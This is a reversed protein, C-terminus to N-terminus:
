MKVTHLDLGNFQSYSTTKRMNAAHILSHNYVFIVTLAKVPLALQLSVTAHSNICARVIGRDIVGTHEKAHCVLINQM